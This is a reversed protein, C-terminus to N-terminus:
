CKDWDEKIKKMKAKIQPTLSLSNLNDLKERDVPWDKIFVLNDDFVGIGDHVILKCKSCECLFSLEWCLVFPGGCVANIELGNRFWERNGCNCKNKIESKREPLDIIEIPM